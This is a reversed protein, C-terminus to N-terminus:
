SKSRIIKGQVASGTKEAVQRIALWIVAFPNGGDPQLKSVDIALPPSFADDICIQEQGRVPAM